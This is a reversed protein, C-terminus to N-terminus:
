DIADRRARKRVILRIPTGLFEYDERLRKEVFRVYEAALDGGRVFLVVTPPEVGVQVAYLIRARRGGRVPPPHAEQWDIVKRNTAEQDTFRLFLLNEEDFGQIFEQLSQEHISPKRNPNVNMVRGQGLYVAAHESTGPMGLSLFRMSYVKYLTKENLFHLPRFIVDGKKIGPYKAGGITVDDGSPSAHIEVAPNSITPIQYQRLVLLLVLHWYVFHVILLIPILPLIKRSTMQHRLNVLCSQRCPWLSRWRGKSRGAKKASLRQNL